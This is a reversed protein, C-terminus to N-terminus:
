RGPRDEEERVTTVGTRRSPEVIERDTHVGRPVDLGDNVVDEFLARYHLMAQRLSETSASAANDIVAHGARYHELIRPHKVSLYAAHQEFDAMPYGRTRMVETLLEDAEAVASKPREVFRQEIHQWEGVYRDREAATLPRINFGEVEEARNVLEQEGKTRSGTEHVTRDYEPGFHERLRESRSRRVGAMIAVIVVLVAVAVLAIWIWQPFTDM